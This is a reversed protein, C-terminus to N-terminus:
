ALSQSAGAAVATVGGIRSVGSIIVPTNSNTLSHNGLQGDDNYGWGEVLVAADASQALVAIVAVAAAQLLRCATRRWSVCRLSAHDPAISHKARAADMNGGSIFSRM